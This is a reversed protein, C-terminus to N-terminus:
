RSCNFTRLYLLLDVSHLRFLTVLLGNCTDQACKLQSCLFISAPQVELHEVHVLPYMVAKLIGNISASFLVLNNYDWIGKSIFKHM